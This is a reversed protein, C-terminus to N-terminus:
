LHTQPSRNANLSALDRYWKGLHFLHHMRVTGPRVQELARSIYPQLDEGRDIARTAGDLEGLLRAAEARFSVPYNM